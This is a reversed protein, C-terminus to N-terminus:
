GAFSKLFFRRSGIIDSSGAVYATRRGRRRRPASRELARRAKPRRSTTAPSIRGSGNRRAASSAIATATSSSIATNTTGVQQVIAGTKGSSDSVHYKFTMVGTFGATPTFTITAGNASLAATGGVVAGSAGRAIANGNVDLLERISMSLGAYNKDNALLSAASIVYPGSGSVDVRDNVPMGYGYNSLSANVPVQSIDSFDLASVDKLTDTGDRDARSDAITFTGDGNRTFSYESFSGRYRAVTYGGTGILLDNGAGGELMNAGSTGSVAGGVMTDDGAEGFLLDDGAGGFILDRGDGGRLIDNGRGGDLYYDDGTGGGIADNAIGGILIDNGGAGDLFANATMGSANLADDGRDGIAEEVHAAALDLTVGAVDNVKVIDFGGRGDIHAQTTAANIILVDNGAGGKLTLSGTGGGLWYARTDTADVLFSDNGTTSYFANPRTGDALTFSSVNISRGAGDTVVYSTISASGESKIVTAGTLTSTTISAGEVQFDVSAVQGTTGNTRTFSARNLIDNGAINEGTNGAGQLSISAVGLEALTKLEGADTQADHDADVWVRLDDFYLRGTAANTKSTTRSFSTAGPQALSALAAVGDVFNGGNFHVSITEKISDIKGNGNLDLALIGDNDAVWGTQHQKGDGFTDFFINQEIWSSLEVGDGDLDLVLPDINLLADAQAQLASYRMPILSLWSGNGGVYGDGYGGDSDVRRWFDDVANQV